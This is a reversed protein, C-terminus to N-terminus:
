NGHHGTRVHLCAGPVKEVCKRRSRESEASGTPEKAKEDPRSDKRACEGRRVAKEAKRGSDRADKADVVSGKTRAACRSGAASAESSSWSSAAMTQVTPRRALVAWPRASSEM